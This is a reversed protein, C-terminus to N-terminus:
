LRLASRLGAIGLMAALVALLVVFQAVQRDLRKLCVVEGGFLDGHLCDCAARLASKAFTLHTSFHTM